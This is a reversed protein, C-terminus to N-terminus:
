DVFSMKRFQIAKLWCTSSLKITTPTYCPIIPRVLLAAAAAAAPAMLQRKKKRRPTGTDAGIDIESSAATMEYSDSDDSLSPLIEEIAM